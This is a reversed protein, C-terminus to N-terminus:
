HIRHFVSVALFAYGVVVFLAKLFFFVITAWNIARPALFSDPQNRVVVDLEKKRRFAGWAISGAVYQLFDSGLAVVFLLGAWLFTTSFHLASHNLGNGGGFVWVAGIGAFSLQRTNDSMKGTFFEQHRKAEALDITGHVPASEQEPSIGVTM